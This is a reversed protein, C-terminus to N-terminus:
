CFDVSPVNSESGIGDFVHVPPGKPRRRVWSLGVDGTKIEGQGSGIAVNVQEWQLGCASRHTDSESSLDRNNGPRGVAEVV